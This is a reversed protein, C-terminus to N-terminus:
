GKKANRTMAFQFNGNGKKLESLPEKEAVLVSVSLIM